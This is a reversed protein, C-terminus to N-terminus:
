QPLYKQIRHDTCSVPLAGDDSAAIEVGVQQRADESQSGRIIVGVILMLLSFVIMGAFPAVVRKMTSNRKGRADADKGDRHRPVAAVTENAAAQGRLFRAHPAASPLPGDAVDAHLPMKTAATLTCCICAVALSLRM